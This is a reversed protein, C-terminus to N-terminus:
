AGSLKKKINQHSNPTFFPEFFFKLLLITLSDSMFDFEGPKLKRVDCRLYICKKIAQYSFYMLSFANYYGFPVNSQSQHGVNRYSSVTVCLAIYQVNIDKPIHRPICKYVTASTESSSAAETDLVVSVM